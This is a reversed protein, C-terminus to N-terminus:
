NGLWPMPTRMFITTQWKDQEREISSVQPNASQPDSAGELDAITHAGMAQWVRAPLAALAVAARGAREQGDLPHVEKRARGTSQGAAAWKSRKKASVKKKTSRPSRKKRAMLDEQELDSLVRENEHSDGITLAEMEPFVRMGSTAIQVGEIGEAMLTKEITM